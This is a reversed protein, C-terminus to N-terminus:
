INLFMRLLTHEAVIMFLLRLILNMQSSLPCSIFSAFNGHIFDMIDIGRCIRMKPLYMGTMIICVVSYWVLRYCLM